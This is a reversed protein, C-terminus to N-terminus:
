MNKLANGLREIGTNIQSETAAAYTLRVHVATSSSSSSTTNTNASTLLPVSFDDGPVAIVGKSALQKFIDFSNYKSFRQKNLTFWLFM